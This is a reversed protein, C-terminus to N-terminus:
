SQGRPPYKTTCWLWIKHGVATPLLSLPDVAHMNLLTVFNQGLEHCFFNGTFEWVQHTQVVGKRLINKSKTEVAITHM